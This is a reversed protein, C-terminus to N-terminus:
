ATTAAHAHVFTKNYWTLFAPFSTAITYLGGASEVRQQEKKQAESQTDRGIKVEISCHRGTIVAHIDATGKRTGGHTYVLKGNIKRATGTSSVRNATGPIAKNHNIFDCICNTLGNATRDNYSKVAMTFGGSAEFFGPATRQIHELKLRKLMKRWDECGKEESNM